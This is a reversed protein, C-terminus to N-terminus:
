DIASRCYELVFEAIHVIKDGMKKQSRSGSELHRWQSREVPCTECTHRLESEMKSELKTSTVGVKDISYIFIPVHETYGYVTKNSGHMQETKSSGVAYVGDVPDVVAVFEKLISYNPGAYIVCCSARESCDDKTINEEKLHTNLYTRVQRQANAVEMSPSLRRGSEKGRVLERLEGIRYGVTNDNELREEVDEVEYLRNEWLIHDKWNIAGSTLILGECEGQVIIRSSRAIDVLGPANRAIVIGELLIKKPYEFIRWGTESDRGSYIAKSVSIEGTAGGAMIVSQKLNDWLSGESYYWLAYGHSTEKILEKDLLAHCSRYFTSRDIGASRCITEKLQPQKVKLAAIIRADASLKKKDSTKWGRDKAVKCSKRVNMQMGAVALQFETQV